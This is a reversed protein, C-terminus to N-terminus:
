RPCCAHTYLSLSIANSQGLLVCGPRRGSVSGTEKIEPHSLWPMDTTVPEPPLHLDIFVTAHFVKLFTKVDVSDLCKSDNLSVLKWATQAHPHAESAFNTVLRKRERCSAPMIKM